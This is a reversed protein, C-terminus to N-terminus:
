GWRWGGTTWPRCSRTFTRTMSPRGTPSSRAPATTTGTTTSARTRYREMHELTTVTRSLRKVLEHKSIIGLRQAAVASWMYAGINTTSTQVSTSGDSNLVDAPLGSSQDTMAVFSAWTRKAYDSMESAHAAPALVFLATVTVIILLRRVSVPSGTDVDIRVANARAASRSDRGCTGVYM